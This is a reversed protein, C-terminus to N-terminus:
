NSYTPRGCQHTTIGSSCFVCPIWIRFDEDLQASTKSSMLRPSMISVKRTMFQERSAKNISMDTVAFAKIHDAIKFVGGSREGDVMKKDLRATESRRTPSTM